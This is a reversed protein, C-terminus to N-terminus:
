RCVASSEDDDVQCNVNVETSMRERLKDEGFHAGAVVALTRGGVALLGLARRRTRSM